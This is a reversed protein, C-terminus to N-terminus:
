AVDLPNLVRQQALWHRRAQDTDYHMFNLHHHQAWVKVANFGPLARCVLTCVFLHV